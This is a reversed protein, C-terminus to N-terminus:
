IIEKNLITGDPLLLKGKESLDVLKEFPTCNKKCTDSTCTKGDCKFCYARTRGSGPIVVDPLGCHCCTITEHIIDNGAPDKLILVGKVSNVSNGFM